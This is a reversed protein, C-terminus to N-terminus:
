AFRLQAQIAVDSVTILKPAHMGLDDRGITESTRTLIIAM